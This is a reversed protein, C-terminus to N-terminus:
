ETTFLEIEFLERVILGLSYIDARTDYKSSIMVEPAVYKMTGMEKTHSEGEDKHVTALGFDALKVFRGNNGFTILINSPKLDRHIIAPYQSHLYDVCELIEIFLESAVYYALPTLLKSTKTELKDHIQAITERLTQQCLEMQIHLLLVKYQNYIKHNSVLNGNYMFLDNVNEKLMYNDEVWASICEVVFKCKLNVLLHIEGITEKLDEEELPIKKIAYLAGDLKDLAKIVVGMGGYSIISIEDFYTIYEGNRKIEKMKMSDITQNLWDNRNEIINARNVFSKDSCELSNNEDSLNITENTVEFREFILQSFSRFNTEELFIKFEEQDRKINFMCIKMEKTFAMSIELHKLSSIDIYKYNKEVEM